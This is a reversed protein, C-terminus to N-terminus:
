NPPWGPLFVECVLLRLEGDCFLSRRAWCGDGRLASPLQPPLWAAPYRGIEIRGRNIDPRGFLLEGLSRSGLKQLELTSHGLAAFPAVSRAYVRAAGGTHLVVERAWVPEEPALELAQAEDERAPERGQHLVEVAFDQDGAAVLRATLSGEDCLWDLLPDAPPAPHLPAAYWDPLTVAPRRRLATSRLRLTLMFALQGAAPQM